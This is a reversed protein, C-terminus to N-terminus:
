QARREIVLQVNAAPFGLQPFRSHARPRAGAAAIERPVGKAGRNEGYRLPHMRGDTPQRASSAPSNMLFRPGTASAGLKM